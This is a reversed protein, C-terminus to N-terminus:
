IICVGVKEAVTVGRNESQQHEFGLWHRCNRWYGAFTYILGHRSKVFNRPSRGVSSPPRTGFFVLILLLSLVNIGNSVVTESTKLM